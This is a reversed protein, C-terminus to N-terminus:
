TTLKKQNDGDLKGGILASLYTVEQSTLDDFLEPHDKIQPLPAGNEDAWNWEVINDVLMQQSMDIIAPLNKEDVKGNPTQSIARRMDGVRMRKVIVWAGDGQIEEPTPIRESLSKRGPM